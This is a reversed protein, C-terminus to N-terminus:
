LIRDNADGRSDSSSASTQITHATNSAFYVLPVIASIPGYAQTYKRSWKSSDSICM